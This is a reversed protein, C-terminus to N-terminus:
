EDWEVDQESEELVLNNQLKMKYLRPFSIDLFRGELIVEPYSKMLEELGRPFGRTYFDLESKGSDRGVRAQDNFEVRVWDWGWKPSLSLADSLFKQRQEPNGM